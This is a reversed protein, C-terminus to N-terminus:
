DSDSDNDDINNSGCDSLTPEIELVDGYVELLEPRPHDPHHMRSIGHHEISGLTVIDQFRPVRGDEDDEDSAENDAEDEDEDEEETSSIEYLTPHGNLYYSEGFLARM